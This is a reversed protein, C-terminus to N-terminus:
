TLEPAIWMLVCSTQGRTQSAKGFPYGRRSTIDFVIHTHNQRSICSKSSFEVSIHPSRGSLSEKGETNYIRVRYRLIFNQFARTRTHYKESGSILEIFNHGETKILKLCPGHIEGRVIQQLNNSWNFRDISKLLARYTLDRRLSVNAKYRWRHWTNTMNKSHYLWPEYPKVDVEPNWDSSSSEQTKFISLYDKLRSTM